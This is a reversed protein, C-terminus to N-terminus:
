NTTTAPQRPSRPLRRQAVLHHLPQALLALHERVLITVEDAAGVGHAGVAFLDRRLVDECEEPVAEMARNAVLTASSIKLSM